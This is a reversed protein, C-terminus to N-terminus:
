PRNIRRHLDGARQLVHLEHRAATSFDRLRNMADTEIVEKIDRFSRNPSLYADVIAGVVSDASEVVTPSSLVRMRSVLAYLGVLNSVQPKDSEFADAYWKSAEEIFDRFLAQRTQLESVREQARFQVHQNLWSTTLST